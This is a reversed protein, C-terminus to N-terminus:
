LIAARRSMSAMAYVRGSAARCDEGGIRHQRSFQRLGKIIRAGFDGLMQSAYPGAIVTSLDIVTIGDLPGAM